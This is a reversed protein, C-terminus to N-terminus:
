QKNVTAKHHDTFYAACGMFKTKNKRTFERYPSGCECWQVTGSYAILEEIHKALNKEWTDIRKVHSQKPLIAKGCAGDILNIRIADNHDTQSTAAGYHISSEIHIYVQGCGTLIKFAHEGQAQTDKIIHVGSYNRKDVVARVAHRLGQVFEELTFIVFLINHAAM